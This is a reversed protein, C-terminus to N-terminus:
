MRMAATPLIVMVFIIWQRGTCNLTGTDLRIKGNLFDPGAEHNWEGRSLIQLRRGDITNLVVGDPLHDWNEQLEREYIGEPERILFSNPINCNKMQM